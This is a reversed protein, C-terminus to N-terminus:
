LMLVGVVHEVCWRVYATSAFSANHVALVEWDGLSDRGTMQIDLWTCHALHVPMGIGVLPVNMILAEDCNHSRSASSTVPREEDTATSTDGDEGGFAIRARKVVHRAINTNDWSVHTM